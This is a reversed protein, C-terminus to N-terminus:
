IYTIGYIFVLVYVLWLCFDCSLCLSLFSIFRFFFVLCILRKNTVHNTCLFSHFLRKTNKPLRLVQCRRPIALVINANGEARYVIDSQSIDFTDITRTVYDSVAIAPITTITVSAAEVASASTSKSTSITAASAITTRVSDLELIYVKLRFDSNSNDAMNRKTDMVIRNQETRKSNQTRSTHNETSCQRKKSFHIVRRFRFSILSQMFLKTPLFSINQNFEEM